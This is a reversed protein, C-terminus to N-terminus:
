VPSEESKGGFVPNERLYRVLLHLYRYQWFIEPRGILSELEDVSIWKADMVEEKQLHLDGAEGEFPVLYVKTHADITSYSLIHASRSLDPDIGMEENSERVIAQAITEGQLASGGTAAWLGPALERDLARRQVLIEGAGNRYWIHAVLHYLGEPIKEGRVLTRDLKNEMADYADWLEM